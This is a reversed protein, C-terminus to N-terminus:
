VTHALTTNAAKAAAADFLTRYVVAKNRLALPNSDEAANHAVNTGDARRDPSPAANEVRPPGPAPV